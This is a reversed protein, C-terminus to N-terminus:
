TNVYSLRITTQLPNLALHAHMLQYNEFHHSWEIYHSKACDTPEIRNKIASGLLM